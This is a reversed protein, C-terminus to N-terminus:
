LLAAGIKGGARFLFDILARIGPREGLLSVDSLQWLERAAELAGHTAPDNQMVVLLPLTPDYDAVSMLLDYLLYNADQMESLMAIPQLDRLWQGIGAAHDIREVRIRLFDCVESIFNSLSPQTEVVIVVPNILAPSAVVNATLPDIRWADHDPLSDM